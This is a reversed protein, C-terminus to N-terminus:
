PECAPWGGCPAPGCPSFSTCPACGERPRSCRAPTASAPLPNGTVRLPGIQGTAMPPQTQFDIYRLSVDVPAAKPVAGALAYNLSGALKFTQAPLIENSVTEITSTIQLGTAPISLEWSGAGRRSRWSIPKSSNHQINIALQKKQLALENEAIMQATSTFYSMSNPGFAGCCWYSAAFSIDRPPWPLGLPTAVAAPRAFPRSSATSNSALAEQFSHIGIAALEAGLEAWDADAPEGLAGTSSFGTTPATPSATDGHGGGCALAM